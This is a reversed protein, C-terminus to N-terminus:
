GPYAFALEACDITQKGQCRSEKCVQVHDKSFDPEDVTEPLFQM